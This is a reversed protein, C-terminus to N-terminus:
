PSKCVSCKNKTINLVKLPIIENIRWLLVIHYTSNYNGNQIHPFRYVYFGLYNSLLMVLLHCRCLKFKSLSASWGRLRCESSSWFRQAWTNSIKLSPTPHYLKEKNSLWSNQHLWSYTKSLVSMSRDFGEPFKETGRTDIKMTLWAKSGAPLSAGLM